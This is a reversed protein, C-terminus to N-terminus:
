LLMNTPDQLFAKVHQLYAAGVAGDVVRHDCSLTISMQPVVQWAQKGEAAGPHPVVTDIIAGCGLTGAQGPMIIPSVSKVGYM